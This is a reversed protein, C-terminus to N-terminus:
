NTETETKAKEAKLLAEFNRTFNSRHIQLLAKKTDLDGKYKRWFKEQISQSIEISFKNLSKSQNKLVIGYLHSDIDQYMAEFSKKPYEETYQIEGNDDTLSLLKAYYSDVSQAVEVVDNVMEADYDSIWKVQCSFAILCTFVLLYSTKLNLKM